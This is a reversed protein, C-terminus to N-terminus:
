DILFNDMSKLIANVNHQPYYVTFIKMKEFLVSLDIQTNQILDNNYSMQALMMEKERKKNLEHINRSNTQCKLVGGKGLGISHLGGHYEESEISM